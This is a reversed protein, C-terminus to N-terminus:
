NRNTQVHEEFLFLIISKVRIRKIYYYRNGKITKEDPMDIRM